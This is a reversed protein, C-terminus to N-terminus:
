TVYPWSLETDGSWANETIPNQHTYTNFLQKLKPLPIKLEKAKLAVNTQGRYLLGLAEEIEPTIVM